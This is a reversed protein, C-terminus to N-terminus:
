LEDQMSDHLRKLEEITKKIEHQAKDIERDVISEYIESLNEYFGDMLMNISRLREHDIASFNKNV